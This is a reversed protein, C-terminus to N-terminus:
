SGSGAAATAQSLLNESGQRWEQEAQQQQADEQAKQMVQIAAIQNAQTQAYGNEITARAQIDLSQKPDTSDALGASLENLGQQRQTASSYIGQASVMTSATARAATNMQTAAFDNGAPAFHQTRALMAMAQTALTGTFGQGRLMGEMEALQPLAAMTSPQLLTPAMQTVNDLHAFSQYFGTLQVLSDKSLASITELHGIETSLDILEQAGHAAQLVLQGFAPGDVVALQAQAPVTSLLALMGITTSSLLLARFRSM